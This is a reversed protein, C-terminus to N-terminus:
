QYGDEQREEHSDCRYHDAVGGGQPIVDVHLGTAKGSVVAM